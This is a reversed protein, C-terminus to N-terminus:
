GGICSPVGSSARLAKRAMVQSRTVGSVRMGTLPIVIDSQDKLPLAMRTLTRDGQVATIAASRLNLPLELKARLAVPTLGWPVPFSVSAGPFQDNVYFSQKPCRLLSTM